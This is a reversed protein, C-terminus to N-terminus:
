SRKAHAALVAVLLISNHLRGDLAAEVLEDLEVWRVEIEAQKPGRLRLRFFNLM